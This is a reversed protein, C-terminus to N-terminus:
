ILYVLTFIAVWVLDVFHWYLGALEVTLANAASIAGRLSMGLVISLWLVGIAVHTGHFGTLTFFTSGFVSTSWTTPKPPSEEFTAGPYEKRLHAREQELHHEVVGRRIVRGDPQTITITVFHENFMKNFEFVQGGLFTLGLAITAALWIREGRRDDRETAAHALVMTLSSMLLVFALGSVLLLDFYAHPPPGGQELNRGKLALYAAILGSFFMVESSIFTWLGVKRSNLGLATPPHGAHGSAPASGHAAAHGM